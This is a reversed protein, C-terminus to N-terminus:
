LVLGFYGTSEARIHSCVVLTLDVGSFAFDLLDRSFAALIYCLCLHYLAELIFPSHSLLSSLHTHHALWTMLCFCLQSATDPFVATTKLVFLFVYGYKATMDSRSSSIGCCQQPHVTYLCNNSDQMSYSCSRSESATLRKCVDSQM